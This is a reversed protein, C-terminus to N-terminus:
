AAFRVVELETDSRAAAEARELARRTTEASLFHEGCDDRTEAPVGELV